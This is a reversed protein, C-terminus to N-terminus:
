IGTKEVAGDPRFDTVTGIRDRRCFAQDGLVEIGRAQPRLGDSIMCAADGYYWLHAVRKDIELPAECTARAPRDKITAIDSRHDARVRLHFEKHRCASFATGIAAAPLKGLVSLALAEFAHQGIHPFAILAVPFAAGGRQNRCPICDLKIGALQSGILGNCTGYLDDVRLM